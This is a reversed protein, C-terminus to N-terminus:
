TARCGNGPRNSETEQSFYRTTATPTAAARSSFKGSLDMRDAATLSDDNQLDEVDQSEVHHDPDVDKM